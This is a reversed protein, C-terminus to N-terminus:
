ERYQSLHFEEYELFVLVSLYTIIGYVAFFFGTNIREYKMKEEIENESKKKRM